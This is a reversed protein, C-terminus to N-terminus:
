TFARGGVRTAPHRTFVTGTGSSYHHSVPSGSATVSSVIFSTMLKPLKALRADIDVGGVGIAARREIDRSSELILGDHRIEDLVAGSGARAVISLVSKM